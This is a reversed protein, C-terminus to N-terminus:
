GKPPPMADLRDLAREVIGVFAGPAFGVKPAPVFGVQAISTGDRVVGM